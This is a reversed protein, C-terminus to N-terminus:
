NQVAHLYLNTQNRGNNKSTYLAQDAQNFIEKFTMAQVATAAIGISVTFSLGKAENDVKIFMNAVRKRFDEALFYAEEINMNEIFVAFEEGGIRGVIGLPGFREKLSQAFRELVLDGTQHGYNDNISKFHDIDFLLFSVSQGKTTWKNLNVSIEEQIYQRNYVNTLSDITARKILQEEYKKRVTIDSFILLGGRNHKTFDVSIYAVHFFSNNILVEMEQDYKDNCFQYLEQQTGVHNLIDEGIYGTSKNTSIQQLILKSLPNLQVIINNKDLVIIGEKINEIIKDNAVPHVRLFKYKFLSFYYLFGTPISAIATNVKIFSSEPIFTSVYPILTALILIYYHKRNLMSVKKINKLIAAIGFVIILRGYLIFTLSLETPIVSIKIYQGETIPRIEYRILHHWGDTFILALYVLIPISLFFTRKLVINQKMETFQLLLMYFLVPCLFLPVQQLNRWWIKQQFNNTALEGISSLSLLCLLLMSWFFPVGGPSEQYQHSYIALILFIIASLITPFIENIM